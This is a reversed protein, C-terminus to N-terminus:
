FDLCPKYNCFPLCYQKLTTKCKLNTVVFLSGPMTLQPRQAEILLWM